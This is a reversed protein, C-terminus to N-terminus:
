YCVYSSEEKYCKFFIKKKVIKAALLIGKLYVFAADVLSIEEAEEM